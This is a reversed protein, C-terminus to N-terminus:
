PNARIYKHLPSSLLAVGRRRKAALAGRKKTRAAKRGSQRGSKAGAAGDDMVACFRLYFFPLSARIGPPASAHEGPVPLSGSLRAACLAMGYGTLSHCAALRCLPASYRLLLHAYACPPRRLLLSAAWCFLRRRHVRATTQVAAARGFDERYLLFRGARVTLTVCSANTL